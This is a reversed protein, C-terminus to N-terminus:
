APGVREALDALGGVLGAAVRPFRLATGSNFCISVICDGLYSKDTDYAGTWGPSPRRSSILVANIEV